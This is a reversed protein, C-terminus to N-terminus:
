ETIFSFSQLQKTKHQTTKYLQLISAANFNCEPVTRWTSHSMNHTVTVGGIQISNTVLTWKLLHNFNYM